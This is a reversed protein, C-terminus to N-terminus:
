YKRIVKAAQQSVLQLESLESTKREGTIFDRFAVKDEQTIASQKENVSKLKYVIADGNEVVSTGHAVALNARPLNFIDFVVSSSLL